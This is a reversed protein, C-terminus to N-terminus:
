SLVYPCICAKKKKRNDRVCLREFEGNRGEDGEVGGKRRNVFERSV